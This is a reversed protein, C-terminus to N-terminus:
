DNERAITMYANLDRKHHEFPSGVLHWYDGAIEDTEDVSVM